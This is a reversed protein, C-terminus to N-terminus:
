EEVEGLRKALEFVEELLERYEETGYEMKDLAKKQKEFKDRLKQRVGQVATEAVEETKAPIKVRKEDQKEREEDAAIAEDLIKGIELGSYDVPQFAMSPNSFTDSRSVSSEASYVKGQRESLKEAYANAEEVSDFKGLHEGTAYYWNRAEDESMIIPTGDEDTRIMPILVEKGDDDEFSTSLVTSFSGDENHVVPRNDLDINGERQTGQMNGRAMGKLAQKFNKGFDKFLERAPVDGTGEKQFGLEKLTAIRKEPSLKALDANIMDMDEEHTGFFRYLGEVARSKYAAREEPTHPMPSPTPQMSTAARIYLEGKDNYRLQDKVGSNVLSRVNQAYDYGDTLMRAAIGKATMSNFSDEIHDAETEKGENRLDQVLKKVQREGVIGTSGDVNLIVTQLDAQSMGPTLSHEKNFTDLATALMSGQFGPKYMRNGITNSVGGMLMPIDEATTAEAGAAMTQGGITVLGGNFIKEAMGYLKQPNQAYLSNSMIENFKDGFLAYGVAAEPMSTVAGHKISTLMLDTAAKMHETTTKTRFTDDQVAGTVGLRQMVTDMRITADARSLGLKRMAYDMGAERLANYEVANLEKQQAYISNVKMLINITANDEVAKNMYGQLTAYDQSMPDLMSMQAQYKSVMDIDYNAQDQLGRLTSMSLHQLEPNAAAWEELRKNVAEEDNRMLIKQREEENSRLGADHRGITDSIDKESLGLALGEMTLERYLVDSETANIRGQRQSQAIKNAKLAIDNLQSQSLAERQAKEQKVIGEYIKDLGLNIKVDPISPEEIKSLSMDIPQRPSMGYSVRPAFRSGGANVNTTQNNVYAM